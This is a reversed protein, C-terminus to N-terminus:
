IEDTDGRPFFSGSTPAPGSRQTPRTAANDGDGSPAPRTAATDNKDVQSSAARGSNKSLSEQAPQRNQASGLAPTVPVGAGGATLARADVNTDRGEINKPVGKKKRSAPRKKGIGHERMYQGLTGASIPVGNNTIWEALQKHTYGLALGRKLQEALEKVV